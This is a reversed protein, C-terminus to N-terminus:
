FFPEPPYGDRIGDVLDGVNIGSWLILKELKVNTEVSSTFDVIRWRYTRHRYPSRLGPLGPPSVPAYLINQWRIDVHDVGLTSIDAYM